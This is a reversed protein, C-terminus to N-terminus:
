CPSSLFFVIFRVEENKHLSMKFMGSSQMHKIQRQEDLSILSVRCDFYLNYFYRKFPIKLIERTNLFYISKM